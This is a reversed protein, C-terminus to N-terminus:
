EIRDVLGWEKAQEASFWTTYKEKEAWQEYTLTSYKTLKNLYMKQMLDMFENQARIDSHTERGPWKWMASEHVMFVTDQAAIRHTCVAFIPVAASAVIGSAYITVMTGRNKAREIENSIGLGVTADGGGSNLFIRVDHIGHEEFFIIDNWLRQHDSKSLGSYLQIYGKSGHIFSLTSLEGEPNDISMSRDVNDCDECGCVEEVTIEDALAGCSLWNLGLVLVSLVVLLILKITKM